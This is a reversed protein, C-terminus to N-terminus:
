RLLSTLRGDNGGRLVEQNSRRGVIITVISQGSNQRERVQLGPGTSMM